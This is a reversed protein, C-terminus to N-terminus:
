QGGDTPRDCSFCWGEHRLLIPTKCRNCIEAFEDLEDTPVRSVIVTHARYQTPYSGHVLQLALNGNTM